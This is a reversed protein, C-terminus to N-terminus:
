VVVQATLRLGETSSHEGEPGTYPEITTTAPVNYSSDILKVTFEPVYPTSTSASARAAKVTFLSSMKLVAILLLTARKSM